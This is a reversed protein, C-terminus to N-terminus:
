PRIKASYVTEFAATGRRMCDERASEDSRCPQLTPDGASVFLDLAGSTRFILTMYGPRSAAFRLGESASVRTLKSGAGSVLVHAPDTPGRDGFVQLSHDHGGAFLLPRRGAAAVRERFQRIFEAYVPSDLDQVLTGSKELLWYFGLGRGGETVGHPGSTEWPHHALVLIERSGASEFVSQLRDFFATAADEDLPRLFWDTDLIVIRYRDGIDRIAPGPRGAEPLMVVRAAGSERARRLAEAQNRLRAEGKKGIMGGWDHNGPLFWGPTAHARAVPGAVVDIQSWLRISDAPFHRDSRSRLGRPYVNDGLFAVAVASDRGLAASWREVDGRLRALLPSRGTEAQGADGVLFLVAEVSAPDPQAIPTFPPLVPPPFGRGCAAVLSIVALLGLRAPWKALGNM